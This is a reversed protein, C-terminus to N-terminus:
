SVCMIIPRKWSMHILFGNRGLRMQWMYGLMDLWMNEVLNGAADTFDSPTLHCRIVTCRMQKMDKLGDDCLQKMTDLSQTFGLHEMRFKYEWFLNPQFNSGWLCVEAGDTTRLVGKVVQM